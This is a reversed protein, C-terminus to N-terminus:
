DNPVFFIIALQNFAMLPKGLIILEVQKQEFYFNFIVSFRDFEVLKFCVWSYGDFFLLYFSFHPTVDIKM